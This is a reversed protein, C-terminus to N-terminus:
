ARILCARSTGAGRYDCGLLDAITAGIDAMTPLVGLDVGPKIPPGAILVPTNERSHDTSPTAPDCGHDASIVVVDDPGLADLFGGLWEDFENLANTYGPVDNRHGYLMDFDVLNIYCLGRFDRPLQESTVRLGDANGHTTQTWTVGSGNFIDHIKGIGLVDYGQEHLADLVTPEPPQLSYDHRETTRHFNGPEGDFPRAIVRGMAWDGTLMDRAIQCYRYLEDLPVVQKHTAIQFVSDASTYLILKGTEMHEVGYDRIADTGSYAKNLLVEKGTLRTFEAVMEPPFGDPFIPMPQTSIVGAMEWHGNTTDKGASQENARGFAGIPADVKPGWGNYLMNFVGMRALNPVHLNGSDFCAKLTDSGEDDFDAADFAHGVGLSDCVIWFVRNVM